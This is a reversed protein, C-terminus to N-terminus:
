LRFGLSKGETICQSLFRGTSLNLLTISDILQKRRDYECKLTYLGVTTTPIHITDGRNPLHHPYIEQFFRKAEEDKYSLFLETTTSLIKEYINMMDCPSVICLANLIGKHIFRSCYGYKRTGSMDTLTFRFYEPTKSKNVSFILNFNQNNNNSDYQDPFCFYKLTLEINADFPYKYRISTSLSNLSNLNINSSSLCGNGNAFYGIDQEPLIHVVYDFLTKLECAIKLHNPETFLNTMHNGTSLTDYVNKVRSVHDLRSTRIQDNSESSTSSSDDNDITMENIDNLSQKSLSLPLIRKFRNILSRPSFFKTKALNPESIGKKMISKPTKLSDNREPKRNNSLTQMKTPQIVNKLEEYIHEKPLIEKELPLLGSSLLANSVGATLDMCSVSRAGLSLL